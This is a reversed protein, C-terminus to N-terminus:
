DNAQNLDFRVYRLMRSALIEQDFHALRQQLAALRVEQAFWRNSGEPADEFAQRVQGFRVLRVLEDQVDAM